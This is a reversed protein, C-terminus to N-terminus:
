YPLILSLASLILGAIAFGYLKRHTCLAVISLIVTILSTIKCPNFCFNGPVLLILSLIFVVICLAAGKKKQVPVQNPVEYYNENM